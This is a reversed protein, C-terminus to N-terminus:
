EAGDKLLKKYRQQLEFISMPRDERWHSPLKAFAWMVTTYLDKSLAELETIRTRAELLAAAIRNQQADEAISGRYKRVEEIEDNGM